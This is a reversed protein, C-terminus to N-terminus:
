LSSIIMDELIDADMLVGQHASELLDKEWGKSRAGKVLRVIVEMTWPCRLLMGQIHARDQESCVGAAYRVLGYVCVGSKLAYDPTKRYQHLQPLTSDLLNQFAHPGRSRGAPPTPAASIM